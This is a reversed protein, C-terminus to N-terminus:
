RASWPLLGAENAYREKIQKKLIKLTPGKPLDAVIEIFKPVEWKALKGQCHRILEDASAAGGAKLAVMAVVAEGWEPHPAGVVAVERVAPHEALTNEVISPFVNAAGTIILFHRRDTLYIYGEDDQRGIDHTRLWDGHLVEASLEPLNQYGLMLTDSRIWLEGIEGRMVPVGGDDRISVECHLGPRGCSTLLQPRGALAKLHDGHQLFTAWACFETLGYSQILEVGFTEIASEILAPSAPASGYLVVRLASLDYRATDQRYTSVLRQLMVPVALFSTVRERSCTDLFEEAKFDGGPLVTTMGNTVSMLNLMFTAWAMSTPNTWTDEHRLGLSLVMHILMDRMGSHKYIAGKPYGTTGSTYSIAAADNGDLAVPEPEASAQAILREYDLAFGHGEGFGVLKRGEREFEELYPALHHRCSAQVIVVRADSDRVVHAMEKPAYGRNVGVRVAGIELCAYIHEVAEVHDYSLMAVADGKRVGLGQLAAALRLNRECVEAWTRRRQGDIYAVKQAYSTACRRVFDRVLM